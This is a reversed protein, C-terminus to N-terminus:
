LLVHRSVRGLLLRLQLLDNGREGGFGFQWGLASGIGLGGYVNGGAALQEFAVDIAGLTVSEAFRIFIRGARVQGAIARALPQDAKNRIRRVWFEVTFAVVTHRM